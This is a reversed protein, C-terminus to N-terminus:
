TNQLTLFILTEAEKPILKEAVTKGSSNGTTKKKL